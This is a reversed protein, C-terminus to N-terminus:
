DTFYIRETIMKLKRSYSANWTLSLRSNIRTQRVKTRAPNKRAVSKQPSILVSLMRSKWLTLTSFVSPPSCFLSIPHPLCFVRMLIVLSTTEPKVSHSLVASRINLPPPPLLHFPSHVSPLPTIQYFSENGWLIDSLFFFYPVNGAVACAKVSGCVGDRQKLSKMPTVPHLFSAVATVLWSVPDRRM